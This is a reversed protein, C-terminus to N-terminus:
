SRRNQNPNPHTDLSRDENHASIITGTDDQIIHTHPYDIKKNNDDVLKDGSLTHHTGDSKTYETMYRPSTGEGNDIIKNTAM